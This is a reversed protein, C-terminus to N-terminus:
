GEFRVIASGVEGPMPPHAKRIAIAVKDANPFEKKLGTHIEHIFQELLDLKQQFAHSVVNNIIVYDVFPLQESDDAQVHVDVDVLFENELQHEEAYLGRTAYIRIDHLSVTLM